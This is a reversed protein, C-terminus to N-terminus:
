PSRWKCFTASSRQSERSKRTYKTSIRGGMSHGILVFNDLEFHQILLSLDSVYSELKYENDPAPGTLGHRRLDFRIVRFNEVLKKAM